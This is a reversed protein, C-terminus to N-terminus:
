SQFSKDHTVKPAKWGLASLIMLGLAGFFLPGALGVGSEGAAAAAMAGAAPESPGVAQYDEGGDGLWNFVNSWFIVFDAQHGFEDSSFGVWVQRCPEERAALAVSGASSVIPQWGASPPSEVNAGALARDWDVDRTLPSDHVILNQIASLKRVGSRSDMLVAAPEDPVVNESAAIVAFHKSGQSAVRHRSYVEIMRMLAPPLLGRGEVVPWGSGRVAELHHDVGGALIEADIASALAPLDVFYNRAQDRGPLDVHESVVSSGARVILKGATLDSENVLRIMAQTTPASRVTLSEIRVDSALAARSLSSKRIVPGGAAVIALLMAVLMAIIAGPPMRWARDAKRNQPTERGWLELFPVGRTEFRGRLLWIVLAGWPGLLVLWIPSVLFM